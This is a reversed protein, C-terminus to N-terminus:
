LRYNTLAASIQGAAYNIDGANISQNMYKIIM